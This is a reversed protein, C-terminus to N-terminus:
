RTHQPSRRAETAIKILDEAVRQTNHRALLMGNAHRYVDLYSGLLSKVGLERIRDLDISIQEQGEQAYKEKLEDPAPTSNILAYDFLECEAHDYIARIHDAASLGLSENAQTMLNCVYVKVARSDCIAKPVARVLLNPILSTFLSGPGITILDAEMIAAIADPIPQADAPLLRLNVIRRKSATIKTEGAVTSGDDMLAELQVHSTTAPFIHGRTALVESSLRVAAAFDGTMESLALLFLNGFNHGRLTQGSEFRYQFLKAMLEEEESLAVICNRIDGPPLVNFEERLRGSSGGDDSVTVIASLNEITGGAANTPSVYRKLGRLLTSLGTGGGIAVVNLQKEPDRSM